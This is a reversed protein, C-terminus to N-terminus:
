KIWIFDSTQTVLLYSVSCFFFFVIFAYVSVLAFKDNQTM